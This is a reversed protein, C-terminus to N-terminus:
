LNITNDLYSEYTSQTYKTAIATVTYVICNCRIEFVERKASVSVSVSVETRKNITIKERVCKLTQLITFENLRVESQLSTTHFKFSSWISTGFSVDFVFAVARCIKVRQLLKRLFQCNNKMDMPCHRREITHRSGIQIREHHDRHSLIDSVRVIITRRSLSM